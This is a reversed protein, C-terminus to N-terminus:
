RRAEHIKQRADLLYRMEDALMERDVESNARDIRARLETVFWVAAADLAGLEASTLTVVSDRACTLSIVDHGLSRGPGKTGDRHVLVPGPIDTKACAELGIVYPITPGRLRATTLALLLLCRAPYSRVVPWESSSRHWRRHDNTVCSRQKEGSKMAAGVDGGIAGSTCWHVWSGISVM